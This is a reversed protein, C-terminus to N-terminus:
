ASRVRAKDFNGLKAELAALNNLLEPPMQTAEVGAQDRLLSIAQSRLLTGDGICNCM